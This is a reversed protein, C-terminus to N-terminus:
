EAPLAFFVASVMDGARAPWEEEVAARGEVEVRLTVTGPALAPALFLDIAGDGAELLAGTEDYALALVEATLGEGDTVTITAGAWDEPFMPEGWLTASTSDTLSPFAIGQFGDISEFFADYITAEYSYLAGTLWTATGGPVAGRWVTPTMGEGSVRIAVEEGVPAAELQWYGPSSELPQTGTILLADSLDVLEILPDAIPNVDVLESLVVPEAADELYAYVYGGWNVEDPDTRVEELYQCGILLMAPSLRLMM